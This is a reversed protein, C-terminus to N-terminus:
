DYYYETKKNKLRSYLTATSVGHAAAALKVSYFKGLPTIVCSAGFHVGPPRGSRGNSLEQSDSVRIVVVRPKRPRDNYENVIQDLVEQEMIYEKM